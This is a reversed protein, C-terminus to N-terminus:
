PLLAPTPMPTIFRGGAAAFAAQQRMIEDKFNWALLLLYDVPQDVLATVDLVPVHVGPMLHGQKHTNRDVVYDLSETGMKLTNLLTSGKAAAGYGAIAHGEAKLSRVLAKLEECGNHVRTAFSAYYDLNGMGQAREHAIRALLRESPREVKEMYWRLTGGHLNEFFEVDNLFLGHRRMLADVALCSFYCYHEHYITDFEVHEILEEVSPNEVTLVGGEALLVAFGGVFDNLDPVHAMVNNACIVQAQGHEAVIARAARIGFFDVITPVGVKEAAAAPGPSPDIGLVRVGSDLFSRLLYGDNSAVEVVLDGAKARGAALLGNAHEAAHKCLADSFSSYYPYDETFIADAPLEYGLQVLSCAECFVIALPFSQEVSLDADLKLLANAIPTSGLDLVPHLGTSGCSRCAIVPQSVPM